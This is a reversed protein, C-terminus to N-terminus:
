GREKLLSILYRSKHRIVKKGETYPAALQSVVERAENLGEDTEKTDQLAENDKALQALRTNLQEATLSTVEEVFEPYEARVVDQINKKKQQKM